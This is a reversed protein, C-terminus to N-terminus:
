VRLSTPLFSPFPFFNREASSSPPFKWRLPSPASCRRNQPPFQGKEYRMITSPNLQVRAAIEKQSLKLEKRRATMRSGIEQPTFM